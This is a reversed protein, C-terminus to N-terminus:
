NKKGCIAEPFRQRASFDTAECKIRLLDGPTRKNLRPNISSFRISMKRYTIVGSKTKSDYKGMIRQKRKPRKGGSFSWSWLRKKLNGRKIYQLTICNAYLFLTEADGSVVYIYACVCPCLSVCVCVCVCVCMCM